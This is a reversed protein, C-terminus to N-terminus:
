PHPIRMSRPVIVSFLSWLDGGLRAVIDFANQCENFPWSNKASMARRMVPLIM